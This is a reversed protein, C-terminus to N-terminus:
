FNDGADITKEQRAKKFILSEHIIIDDYKSLVKCVIRYM